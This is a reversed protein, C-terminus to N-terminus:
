LSNYRFFPPKPLYVNNFGAVKWQHTQVLVPVHVEMCIHTHPMSKGETELAKRNYNKFLTSM